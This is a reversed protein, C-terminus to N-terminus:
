ELDLGALVDFRGHLRDAALGDIEKVAAREAERYAVDGRHAHPADADAAREGANAM